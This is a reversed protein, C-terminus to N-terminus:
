RWDFQAVFSKKLFVYVKSCFNPWAVMMFKYSGDQPPTWDKPWNGTVEVRYVEDVSDWYMSVTAHKTDGLAM